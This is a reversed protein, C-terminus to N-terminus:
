EMLSGFRVKEERLLFLFIFEASLFRLGFVNGDWNAADYFGCLQIQGCDTRSIGIVLFV